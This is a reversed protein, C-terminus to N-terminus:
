HQEVEAHVEGIRSNPIHLPSAPDAAASSMKVIHTIGCEKAADIVNNQEKPLDNSFGSLLFVAKSGALVEHLTEKNAMDAEMWTIHPMPIAKIKNRTVAIAPTGSASLFRLVESGIRGTAGFVTIMNKDTM